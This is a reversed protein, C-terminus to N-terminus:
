EEVKEEVSVLLGKESEISLTHPMKDFSLSEMRRVQIKWSGNIDKDIVIVGSVLYEELGLGISSTALVTCDLRTLADFLNRIPIRKQVGPLLFSNFGDLVVRTVNRETIVKSIKLTLNTMGRGYSIGLESVDESLDLAETSGRATEGILSSKSLNEILNLSLGTRSALDLTSKSPKDLQVLLCNEGKLEGSKLFAVVFTARAIDQAANILYVKNRILGGGCIADVGETGSSVLEAQTKPALTDEVKEIIEASSSVELVKIGSAEAFNRAPGTLGPISVLVATGVEIDRLITVPRFILTEDLPKDSWIINIAIGARPDGEKYALIDIPHTVGSRGKVIAPNVVIYGIEKLFGILPLLDRTAKQAIEKSLEYTYYDALIAESETFESQCNKCFYFHSVTGMFGCKGCLVSREGASDNKFVDKSGCQQCVFSVVVNLGQCVPCGVIKRAMKRKLYRMDLLRGLLSGTADPISEYIVRRLPIMDQPRSPPTAITPPTSVTRQVDAPIVHTERTLVSELARPETQAIQRQTYLIAEQRPSEVEEPAKINKSSPQIVETALLRDTAAPIPVNPRQTVQIFTELWQRARINFLRIKYRKVKTDYEIFNIILREPGLPNKLITVSDIKDIPLPHIFGRQSEFVIRQNTLYLRGAGFKEM